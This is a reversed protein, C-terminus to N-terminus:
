TLCQGDRADLSSNTQVYFLGLLGPSLWDLGTDQGRARKVVVDEQWSPCSPGAINASFARRQELLTIATILPLSPRQKPGVSAQHRQYVEPLVLQTTIRLCPNSEQKTGKLPTTHVNTCHHTFGQPPRLHKWVSCRTFGVDPPNNPNENKWLRQSAGGLFCRGFRVFESYTQAPTILLQCVLWQKDTTNPQQKSLLNFDCTMIKKILTEGEWGGVDAAPTEARVSRCGAM